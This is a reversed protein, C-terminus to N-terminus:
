RGARRSPRRRREPDTEGELWALLEANPATTWAALAFRRWAPKVGRRTPRRAGAFGTAGSWARRDAGVVLVRKAVAAPEVRRTSEFGTQRQGRACTHGVFIQSICRYHYMCPRVTKARGGGAQEAAGDALLKRGM